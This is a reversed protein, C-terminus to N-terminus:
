GDKGKPPAQPGGGVRKELVVGMAGITKAAWL